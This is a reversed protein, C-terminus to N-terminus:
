VFVFGFTITVLIGSPFVWVILYLFVDDYDAKM